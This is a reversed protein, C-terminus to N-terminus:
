SKSKGGNFIYELLESLVSIIGVAALLLVVAIVLPFMTAIAAILVHKGDNKYNVMLMNLVVLLAAAIFFYMHLVDFLMKNKM